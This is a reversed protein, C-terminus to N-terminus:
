TIVSGMYNFVFGSVDRMSRRKFIERLGIVLTDIVAITVCKGMQRLKASVCNNINGMFVCQYAFDYDNDNTLVESLEYYMVRLYNDHEQFQKYNPVAIPIIKKRECSIEYVVSAVVDVFAYGNYYCDNCCRISGDDNVLSEKNEKEVINDYLRQLTGFRCFLLALVRLTGYGRLLYIRDGIQYRMKWMRPRSPDGDWVVSPLITLGSRMNASKPSFMKILSTRVKKWNKGQYCGMASLVPIRSHCMQEIYYNDDTIKVARSYFSEGEEVMKSSHYVFDSMCPVSVLCSDPLDIPSTFYKIDCEHAENEKGCIVRQPFTNEDVLTFLCFNKGAKKSAKKSNKNPLKAM